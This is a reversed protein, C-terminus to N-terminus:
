RRAWPVRLLSVGYGALGGVVTVLPPWLLVLGAASLWVLLGGVAAAPVAAAVRAARRVADGAGAAGPLVGPLVSGLSGWVGLVVAGGVACLVGAPGPMRLAGALGVLVTAGVALWVLGLPVGVRLTARVLGLCRRLPRATTGDRVEGIATVLAATAPLWTVLPLCAVLWAVGLVLVDALREVVDRLGPGVDGPIGAASGAFPPASPRM